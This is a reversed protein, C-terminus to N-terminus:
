YNKHLALSNKCSIAIESEESVIVVVVECGLAEVVEWSVDTLATNPLIRFSWGWVDGVDNALEPKPEKAAELVEPNAARAPFGETNPAPALGCTEPNPANDDAVEPVESGVATFDPKPLRPVVGDPLVDLEPNPVVAVLPNPANPPPNPLPNPPKAAPVPGLSELKAAEPVGAMMPASFGAFAKPAGSLSSSSSDSSSSPSPPAADSSSSTTETSSFFFCFNVLPIDESKNSWSFM